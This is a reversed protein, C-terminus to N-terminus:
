REREKWAYWNSLTEDALIQIMDWRKNRTVNRNRDDQSKISSKAGCIWQHGGNCQRTTWRTTDNESEGIWKSGIEVKRRGLWITDWGIQNVM